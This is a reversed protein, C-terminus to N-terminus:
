ADRSLRRMRDVVLPRYTRGVPVRRDGLDLHDPSWATVHAPNVVHSRHVRLFGHPALESELDSLTSRVTLRETGARVIVYDGLAEITRIDPTRLAVVRRDTRVHVIGGARDERDASPTGARRERVKDLARLLRPLSVPKLLYDVADLEFGEVAHERHATTFVVAPPNALSRVVDLGSLGPMEIDLILLDVARDRVLSVADFPQTSTAVIEVDPVNALLHELVRLALPEDDLILCRIM